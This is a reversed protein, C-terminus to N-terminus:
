SKGGQNGLTIRDIVTHEENYAVIELKERGAATVLLYNPSAYTATVYSHGGATYSSKDGSAAMIQIIGQLESDPEEGRMPLTRAYVHQHGCLVLDVGYTEFLPLYYERMTEARQIDKPIDAVPWLPHHMVAIRWDAEQAADSQLVNQLWNIDPQNAAGMANSDLMIFFVPGMCFTYFFGAGSAPPKEYPYDFQEALLANNDHNGAVAATIRGNLAADAAQRFEQWETADGGDNITDGGFIILETKEDAAVAQGLLEAIGTYNRLEPDTQTDSVFIFTLTQQVPPNENNQPRKEPQEKVDSVSVQASEEQATRGCAASVALLLLAFLIFFVRRIM